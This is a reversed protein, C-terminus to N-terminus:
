WACANPKPRIVAQEGAPVEDEGLAEIREGPRVDDAALRDLHRADDRRQQGRQQCTRRWRSLTGVSRQTITEDAGSSGAAPTRAELLLRAEREIWPQPRESYM